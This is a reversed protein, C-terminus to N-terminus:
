LPIRRYTKEAKDDTVGAFTVSQEAPQITFYATTDKWSKGSETYAGKGTVTVSAVGADTNDAYFVEYDTGAVLPTMVGDEDVAYVVVSPTHASGNYTHESNDVIVKFAGTNTINFSVEVKGAYNGSGKITVTGADTGVTDNDGYTVTFDRGEVLPTSDDEVTVTPTIQNGTYPQDVIDSVMQSTLQKPTIIFTEPVMGTFNSNAKATIIAVATGANVNNVYSVEYSDEPVTLTGAKVESVTGEVPQGTYEGGTVTAETLQAKEIIVKASGTVADYGKAEIKFYVTYTGANTFTPNQATFNGDVTESYTVTAGSNPTTVKVTISHEQANYTGNWGEATYAIADNDVTLIYTATAGNYKEDGAFTATITAEGEGVLTVNGNGDVTAVDTNSSSYTVILDKPETFLTNSM